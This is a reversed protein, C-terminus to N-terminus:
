FPYGIALNFVGYQAKVKYPENAPYPYRVPFGVDTRLVLVTIDFRLGLGWDVAMENIFSKGFASGPLGAHPRLNWVNGADTFIAGYVISFLKFRYEVNAEIQIDGSEDPLFGSANTLSSPPVYTGPGISRAKFGRLGNTGGAFYQQSYPM